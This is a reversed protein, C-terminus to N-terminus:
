EGPKGHPGPEGHPPEQGPDADETGDETEVDIDPPDLWRRRMRGIVERVRAVAVDITM